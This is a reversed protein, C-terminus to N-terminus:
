QVNSALKEDDQTFWSIPPEVYQCHDVLPDVHFPPAYTFPETHCHGCPKEEPLRYALHTFELAKPDHMADALAEAAYTAGAEVVPQRNAAFLKLSRADADVALDFRPSPVAAVCDTEANSAAPAATAACAALRGTPAVIVAVNGSVILPASEVFGVIAIFAAVSLVVPLM